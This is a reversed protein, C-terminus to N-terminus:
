PLDGVAADFVRLGRALSAEVSPLEERLGELADCTTVEDVRLETM